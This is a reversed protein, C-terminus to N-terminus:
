IRFSSSCNSIDIIAKRTAQRSLQLLEKVLAEDDEGIDEACQRSLEIAQGLLYSGQAVLARCRDLLDYPDNNIRAPEIFGALLSGIWGEM